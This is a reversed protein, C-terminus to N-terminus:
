VPQAHTKRRLVILGIVLLVLVLVGFAMLKEKGQLFLGALGFGATVAYLAWAIQSQKFGARVLRQHIHESDGVFPSHGSRLRKVIVWAGDLLPLGLILLATAIKGGSIIALTGLLFGCVLSGGEGLFLRAPHWNWVLFGLCAGALIVALLATEPQLVPSRYSLFSIVGAGIATVGAVLGDLGDLFKTAYTTSMLWLLGFVDAWLVIRYPLDNLSFVTWSVAELSITGGFPNTVEQIGIGAAIVLGCALLPFLIQKLPSINKIDDWVGGVVLVLSALTLGILHKPLLYGQVLVGSFMWVTAFVGVWIAIGGLLPVPHSHIKRHPASEPKDVWDHRDAIQKVVGGVGWSILASLIFGVVALEPFWVFATSM